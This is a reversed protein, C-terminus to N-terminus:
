IRVIGSELLGIPILYIRIVYNLINPRVLILVGAVLAIVAQPRLGNGHLVPLIGLAGILLLYAAVAYNVVRPVLLVVVGAIIAAIAPVPWHQLAATIGM